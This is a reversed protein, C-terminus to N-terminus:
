NKPMILNYLKIKKQFIYTFSFYIWCVIIINIILVLCAGIGDYRSYFLSVIGFTWIISLYVYNRLLIVANNLTIQDVIINNIGALSGLGFGAISFQISSLLIGEGLMLFNDKTIFHLM